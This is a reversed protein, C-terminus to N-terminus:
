KFKHTKMQDKFDRWLNLYELITEMRSVKMNELDIEIDCICTVVKENLLEETQQIFHGILIILQNSKV